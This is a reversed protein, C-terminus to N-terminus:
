GNFTLSFREGSPGLVSELFVINGTKDLIIRNSFQKGTLFQCNQTLLEGSETMERLWKTCAVMFEQTWKSGLSQAGHENVQQVESEFRGRDDYKFSANVQVDNFGYAERQVRIETFHWGDFRFFIGEGDTFVTSSSDALPVLKIRNDGTVSLWYSVNASPPEFLSKVFTIQNSQFSCGGSLLALVVCALSALRSVVSSRNHGRV